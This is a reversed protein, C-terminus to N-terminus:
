TCVDVISRPARQVLQLTSFRSVHHGMERQALRESSVGCEVDIEKGIKAIFKDAIAIDMKGNINNAPDIINGGKLILDFQKKESLGM